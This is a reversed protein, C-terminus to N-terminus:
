KLSLIDWAVQGIAADQAGTGTPDVSLNAIPLPFHAIHHWSSLRLSQLAIVFRNCLSQLAIAFHSCLSQM